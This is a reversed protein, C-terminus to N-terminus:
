ATLKRVTEGFMKEISNGELLVGKLLDYVWAVVLISWYLPIIRVIRKAFYEKLNGSNLNEYGDLSAYILYGSMIFFLWVGYFGNEGHRPHGCFQGLHVLFVFGAAMIRLIDFNLNRSKITLRIEETNM